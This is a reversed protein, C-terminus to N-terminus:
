ARTLARHSAANEVPLADGLPIILWRRLVKAGVVWLDGCRQRWTPRLSLTHVCMSRLTRRFRKPRHISSTAGDHFEEMWLELLLM